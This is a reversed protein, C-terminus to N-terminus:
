STRFSAQVDPSNLPEWPIRRHLLTQSGGVALAPCLAGCLQQCRHLLLPPLSPVTSPGVSPPGDAVVAVAGTARHSYRRM